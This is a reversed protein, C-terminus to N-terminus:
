SVQSQISDNWKKAIQECVQIEDLFFAEIENLKKLRYSLPEQPATPNLEPYIKTENDCISM